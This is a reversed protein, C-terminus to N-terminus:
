PAAGPTAGEGVIVPISFSRSVPAAGQSVVVVLPVYFVGERRPVLTLEHTHITASKPKPEVVWEGGSAVEIADSSQFSVTFSRVGPASSLVALSVNFPEGLRPRSGIEFRLDLPSEGQIVPVVAVMQEPGSTVVRRTAATRASPDADQGGGCAAVLTAALLAVLTANFPPVAHNM